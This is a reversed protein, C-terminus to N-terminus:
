DNHVCGDENDSLIFLLKFIRFGGGAGLIQSLLNFTLNKDSYIIIKLVVSSCRGLTRSRLLPGARCGVQEMPPCAIIQLDEPSFEDKLLAHFKQFVQQINNKSLSVITDLSDYM